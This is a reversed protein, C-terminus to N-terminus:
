SMDHFNQKLSAMDQHKDIKSRPKSTFSLASSLKIIIQKYLTLYRINFLRNTM